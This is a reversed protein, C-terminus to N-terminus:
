IYSDRSDRRISYIIKQTLVVLSAIVISVFLVSLFFGLSDSVINTSRAGIFLIERSILVGFIFLGPKISYRKMCSYVGITLTLVLFTAMVAAVYLLWHKGILEGVVKLSMNDDYNSSYNIVFVLADWASRVVCYTGLIFLVTLVRRHNRFRRSIM